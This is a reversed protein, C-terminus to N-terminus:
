RRTKWGCIGAITSTPWHRTGLGAYRGAGGPDPEQLEEFVTLGANSVQKNHNLDVYTLRFSEGPLDAAARIERARSTSAITQTRRGNLMRSGPQGTRRARGTSGSGMGGVSLVNVRGCPPRSRHSPAILTRGEESHGGAFVLSPGHRARRHHGTAETFGSAASFCCFFAQPSRGAAPASVRGGFPRPPKRSKGRRHAAVVPPAVREPHQLAACAPARAPGSGGQGGALGIRRSRPACGLSSRACGRRRRRPHDGPDAAAHGRGGAAPGGLTSTRGSRRGAATLDHVARQGPRFLDARRDLTEGSAQEPAMFM